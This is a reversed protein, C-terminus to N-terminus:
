TNLPQWVRSPLSSSWLNRTKEALQFQTMPLLHQWDSVKFYCDWKIWRQSLTHWTGSDSYCNKQWDFKLPIYCEMFFHSIETKSFCKGCYSSGIRGQHTAPFVKYISGSHWLDCKFPTNSLFQFKHFHFLQEQMLM